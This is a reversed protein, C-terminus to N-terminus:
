FDFRVGGNFVRGDLPAWADVTWRGDVGRAPRLLSDWRTQRVDTLNEANVFLRVAGLRREGLMGLVLYPRSRDRYPNEELRQVGTYYAEIGLRGVGEAEWVGVVGASHRPTLPVDAVGEDDHQRARVYTYSATATVSGRRMTALLEAGRNVTPGALNGLAYRISRQVATSHNIRSGFVTATLTSSGFARTVDISASRGREARLPADITLSTLGAAETEETLPTPAFFGGGASVRVTWGHRFARVALRPSLFTGLQAQRDLRAGASAALWSALDVDDQVFVGPVDYSFSFRPVDRARYHNREHAAGVVWTHAGAAGRLALELFVTDHRDRERVEGFRHDHRQWTAATRATLVFRNRVLRQLTAGVDGRLTDLAEVYPSGTAALRAGPLNGGNRDEITIGATVFGSRGAGGDWFVRPRFVGRLYGAVDAWGDDDRDTAVQRHAGALMSARWRETLPTASFLVVDTAGLTSQNMLVDHHPTELPRRSLLNVVGGMAGSGYLASAVGKIVEVRELDMPPVQLLGLGSVQQGLLPLGDSFFRTYRGTMGQVRVTAAGIAPSTAQVRLGGMENLMMVIDGPTMLMKEEIEERDLVEVRTPQDELRRGTRTTAVVVVDEEVSPPASLTVVIELGAATVDLEQRSEVFGEKRVVLMTRGPQAELSARGDADTSVAQAGLVISADALPGNVDQVLVRVVAQPVSPQPTATAAGATITACWVLATCISRAVRM